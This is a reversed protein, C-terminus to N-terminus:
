GIRMAAKVAAGLVTGNARMSAFDNSAFAAVVGSSADFSVEALWSLNSGNHWLTDGRKIWGLAYFGGFHPTHLMKWSEPRLLRSPQDRHATLYKLMDAINMHTLGAPGLVAPLDTFHAERTGDVAIRHGLPQDIKGPHGPLGIGASALGLSKFVQDHILAEWPKGALVELMTGAVVFGANAYDYQSGPKTAPAVSLVSQALMLREDSIQPTLGNQYKALDGMAASAPLGSRHSLLHLLTVAAFEPHIGSVSKGLVSGISSDWRLLGAEVARAAILATMSKTISGIHWRDDRAVPITAQASRLGDVIITAKGSGRKWGAGMAPTGLALRHARLKELTLPGDIPTAVPPPAISPLPGASHQLTLPLPNGLQTFTGTLAGSNGLRAKYDAGIQPFIIIIQNGDVKVNQAPITANGQDISTLAAHLDPSIELKLRLQVAGADLTGLYTGAFPSATTEAQAASGMLLSTVGYAGLGILTERRSATM